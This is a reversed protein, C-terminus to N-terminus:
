DGVKEVPDPQLLYHWLSILELIDECLCFYRPIGQMEGSIESLYVVTRSDRALPALRAEKKKIVRASSIAAARSSIIFTNTTTSTPKGEFGVLESVVFHGVETM